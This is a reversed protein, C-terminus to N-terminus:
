SRGIEQKLTRGRAAVQQTTEALHRLHDLVQHAVEQETSSWPPTTSPNLKVLDGHWKAYRKEGEILRAWADAYCVLARTEKRTLREALRLVDLSPSYLTWGAVLKNLLGPYQSLDITDTGTAIAVLREGYAITQNVDRGIQEVSAFATDVEEALANRLRRGTILREVGDWLFRSVVFAAAGVAVTQWVPDAM